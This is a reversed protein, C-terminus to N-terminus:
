LLAMDKFLRNVLKRSDGPHLDELVNSGTTYWSFPLQSQWAVNFVSGHTLTEDMKTFILGSLHFPGFAALTQVLDTEKMTAPAVLYADRSRVKTLFNGIDVVSSESRPNCAPTDVLIIDADASEAIANVLDEPTYAVKLPVGISETYLRAEAIAATRITDACIWVVKKQLKLGYYSALKACVSTKGSGSAGVLCQVRNLPASLMRVPTRIGAELQRQFHSAVREPDEMASISLTQGCVTTIRDMLQADVGQGLLHSRVRGILTKEDIINPDAAPAPAIVPSNAIVPSSSNRETEAPQAPLKGTKWGSVPVTSKRPVNVLAEGAASLSAARLSEKLVAEKSQGELSPTQEATRLPSQDKRTSQPKSGPEPLTAVVECYPKRWVQWAPGAPVQRMSVVIANPGMDRQVTQLAMLMNNARYKKTEM